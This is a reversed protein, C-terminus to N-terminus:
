LLVADRWQVEPRVHGRERRSRDVEPLLNERVGERQDAPEVGAHEFDPDDRLELDELRPHHRGGSTEVVLEGRVVVLV